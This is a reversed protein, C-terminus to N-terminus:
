DNYEYKEWLKFICRSNKFSAFKIFAFPFLIKCFTLVCQILMSLRAFYVREICMGNTAFIALFLRNKITAQTFKFNWHSTFKNMEREEKIGMCQDFKCLFPIKKNIIINYCDLNALFLQISLIWIQGRLKWKINELLEVVQNIVNV